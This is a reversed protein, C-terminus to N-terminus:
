PLDLLTEVLTAMDALDDIAIEERCSHIQMMGCSLVMGMIGHRVLVNNDSGGGGSQLRCPLNLMECAKAFRTVVPSGTDLTYPYYRTQRQIEVAAGMAAAAQEMCRCMDDAQAELANQDLSRCEATVRCTEAVVNTEGGGDIRGINATTKEDIRGLRMAAIGKAAATIASIGKEPAMGAHSAKGRVDFVMGIHGPAQTIGLGPKGDTDLIYAEKATLRGPEMHSSGLLHLEEAVSFFLEIPRHARGDDQLSRVAELIAAMGSLDDAGLVTRGDSRIVNDGGIKAVKGRCPEVSDFHACLLLPPLDLSGPLRAYINGCNGGIAAGANDESVTFGMQRLLVVVRDAIARESKPPADYGTLEIFQQILREKQIM